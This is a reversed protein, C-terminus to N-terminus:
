NTPLAIRSTEGYGVVDREFRITACAYLLGGDAIVLDCWQYDFPYEDPEFGMRTEDSVRVVEVLVDVRHRHLALRDLGDSGKFRGWAARERECYRLEVIGIIQRRASLSIKQAVVTRADVYCGSDEPDVGDAVAQRPWPPVAVITEPVPTKRALYLARWRREWEETDGGCTQVFARTLELSPFVKGKAANTLATHSYHAEKALERYSRFPSTFLLDRLGAAFQQLGADSSPASM